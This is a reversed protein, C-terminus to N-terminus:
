SFIVNYIEVTLEWGIIHHIIYKTKRMKDLLRIKLIDNEWCEYIRNNLQEISQIKIKSCTLKCCLILNQLLYLLSSIVGIWSLLNMFVIYFLIFFACVFYVREQTDRQLTKLKCYKAIGGTLKSFVIFNNKTKLEICVQFDIVNQSDWKLCM